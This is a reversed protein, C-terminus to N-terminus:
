PGSSGITYFGEGRARLWRATHDLHRSDLQADFLRALASATLSSGPALPGDADGTSAVTELAGIATLLAVELEDLDDPWAAPEAAGVEEQTTVPAVSGIRPAPVSTVIDNTMPVSASMVM